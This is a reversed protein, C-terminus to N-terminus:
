DSWRALKGDEAILRKAEGRVWVRDIEIRSWGEPLSTPYARWDGERVRLGTFGLMATQLLSSCNTLVCGYTETPVEKLMEFPEMWDGRWSARFLERAKGRYGLFAAMAAAAATAIGISPPRGSRFAKEYNFTNRLLGQRIPPNHVTLM